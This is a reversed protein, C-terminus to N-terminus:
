PASPQKVEAQGSPKSTARSSQLVRRSAPAERVRGLPNSRLRARRACLRWGGPAAARGSRNDIPSTSFFFFWIEFAVVVIVVMGVLIREPTTLTPKVGGYEPREGRMSRLWPTHQRVTPGQGTMEEYVRSLRGLMWVLTFSVLALVVVVVIVATMTPPGSGQARSGVWLALLPGGTWVNLALVTIAAM